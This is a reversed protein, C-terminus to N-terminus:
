LEGREVSTYVDSSKKLLYRAGVKNGMVPEAYKWDKEMVFMIIQEAVNPLEKSINAIHIEDANSFPADMVLPYPETSLTLEEEGAKATISERALNVLGAIFAFNKVRSLGESEGTEIETDGITSLLKVNYKDTIVVRRNGHYMKEFSINVKRELKEKIEIEKETYTKSIWKSIEEAYKIVELTKKNKDTTIILSDYIKQFRDIQDKCTQDERIKKIKNEEFEDLRKKVDALDSVYKEMNEKGRIAEDIINEEDEFDRIKGRYRLIDKYKNELNSYYNQGLLEFMETKEKFNKITIGISQPPLYELEKMIKKYVDNGRTIKAGCICKGREIIDEISQATMSSIGRGDIEENALFELAKQMLPRAFYSARQYNFNDIFEKYANELYKKEEDIKKEIVKRKEQLKTTSENDHITKELEERRVEYYAIEENIQEIKTVISNRKSKESEIRELAEEAQINGEVDMNSYLKGIVSTRSNKNGIHDLINHLVTLGLIEKVAKAVDKKDCINKVRETDFFFYNSLDEPLIQNIMKKVDYERIPITQNENNVYSMEVRAHTPRAGHVNRDDGYYNQIRTIVYEMGLYNLEIEVEVSECEETKMNKATLYNLLYDPEDEFEARGYLCWNFAQLITTKGYTNNGLIITVNKHSDCVFKLTTEKKFQRFNKMKLSKILM